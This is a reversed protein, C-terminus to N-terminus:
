QYTFESKAESAKYEGLDSKATAEGSKSAAQEYSVRTRLGDAEYASVERWAYIKKNAGTTYYNCTLPLWKENYECESEYSDNDSGSSTSTTAPTSTMSILQIDFEIVNLNDLFTVYDDLDWHDDLMAGGPRRKYAVPKFTSKATRTLTGDQNFFQLTCDFKNNVLKCTGDERKVKKNDEDTRYTVATKSAFEGDAFKTSLVRQEREKPTNKSGDLYYTTRTGSLAFTFDNDAHTEVFEAVKTYENTSSSEKPEQFTVTRTHKDLDYQFIAQIKETKTSGSGASTVVKSLRGGPGAYTYDTVTIYNSDGEETDPIQYKTIRGKSDFERSYEAGSNHGNYTRTQKTWQGAANYTYTYVTTSSATTPWTDTSHDVEFKKTTKTTSTPLKSFDIIATAEYLNLLAANKPLSKNFTKGSASNRKTTCGTAGITALALATSTSCFLFLRQSRMPKEM